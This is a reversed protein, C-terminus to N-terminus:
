PDQQVLLQAQAQARYDGMPVQSFLVGCVSQRDSVYVCVCVCACVCVSVHSPHEHMM